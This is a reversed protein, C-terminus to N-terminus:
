IGALARRGIDRRCFAGDFTIRDVGSYAAVIASEFDPAVATVNLVRGGATLLEGAESQTTGAHYVTVGNVQEASDIGQIPKGVAYDGPYGGSAIVVSVAVSDSWELEVEALRGEACALLVEALDTVLRPLVVQTEPDGFRANFELVQPGDETLIFGGYLVGRYDIGEDAIADASAQMHEIMQAYQQESVLPVPSYVGM